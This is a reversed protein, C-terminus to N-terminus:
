PFAVPATRAGDCDCAKIGECGWTDVQGRSSLASAFVFGTHVKWVKGM